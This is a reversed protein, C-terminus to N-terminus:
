LTHKRDNEILTWFFLLCGLMLGDNEETAPSEIKVKTLLNWGIEEFITVTWKSHQSSAGVQISWKEADLPGNWEIEWHIHPAEFGILKLWRRHAKIIKGNVAFFSSGDTDLHIADNLIRTRGDVYLAEGHEMRSINSRLSIRHPSSKERSLEAWWM